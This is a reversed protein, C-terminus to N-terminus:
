NEIISMLRTKIINEAELVIRKVLEEVSPIDKIIGAVM